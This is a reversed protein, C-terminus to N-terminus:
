QLPVPITARVHLPLKREGIYIKISSEPSARPARTGSYSSPTNYFCWSCLKFFLGFSATNIGTKFANLIVVKGCRSRLLIM